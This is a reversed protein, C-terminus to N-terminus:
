VTCSDIIEALVPCLSEKVYSRWGDSLCPRSLADLGPALLHIFATAIKLNIHSAPPGHVSSIACLSVQVLSNQLARFKMLNGAVCLIVRFESM